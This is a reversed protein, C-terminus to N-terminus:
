WLGAVPGVFFFAVFGITNDFGHALIPAWLIDSYRAKLWAFFAGDITAVVMGVIGQEAHICGFAVSTIAAAAIYGGRGSPLVTRLRTLLYGRFAFEEVFAALTWSLGVFLALQALNGRVDAFDSVDQTTGTAHNLAPMFVGVDLLTWAISLGLVVLTTRGARPLRRLGLSSAGTRRVALSALALAAILLAPIFLDMVALAIAISAEIGAAVRRGTSVREV